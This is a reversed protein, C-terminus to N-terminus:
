KNEFSTFVKAVIKWGDAEKHLLHLDVFNEGFYNEMTVKIVAIDNEVDLVDIRGAATAKGAQDVGDFLAQIPNGNITANKHFSSKMIKSDGGNCGDLYAQAVKVIEEYDKLYTNKM